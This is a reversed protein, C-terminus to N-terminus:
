KGRLNDRIFRYPFSICHLTKEGLIEKAKQRIKHERKDFNSVWSGKFHHIAYTNKTITIKGTKHDKPCFVERPYITFNGNDIKQEKNNLKLGYKQTLIDTVIVVNTTLDCEGNIVFSRNDYYRLLEEIVPNGKESAIIGTIAGTEHEFGTFGKNILFEDLNKLVEVDSDLYIGGYNYIVYLRVYDTIFAWKKQEYAQKVYLNSNIDFNKENWEIIKYDPLKEKWGQIYMEIEESKKNGGFWCYHIVKDIAM